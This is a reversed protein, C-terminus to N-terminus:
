CSSPPAIPEPGLAQLVARVVFPDAPLAGHAAQSAPCADQVRLDVAGELGGSAPPVAVEDAETWVSLWQPGEPTEDGDNLEGLLSSGPSLQSCAVDCSGLLASALAAVQTGHHPSGLTVIRRARRDGEHERVWVRATVGGASFGVVDVSRAGAGELRDVVADLAAAQQRLDGTGNEPLAVTEVERGASELEARLRAFASPSGGYGPVLVVPGPLTQPPLPREARARVLATGASVLAALVLAAVALM